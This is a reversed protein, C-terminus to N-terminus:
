RRRCDVSSALEALPQWSGSTLSGESAESSADGPPSQQALHAAKKPKCETLWECKKELYERLSDYTKYKGLLEYVKEDDIGPILRVLKQRRPEDEPPKGDAAEYLEIAQEWDEICKMM